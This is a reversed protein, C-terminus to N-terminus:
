LVKPSYLISICANRSVKLKFRKTIRDKKKGKGRDYKKNLPIKQAVITKIAILFSASTRFAIDLTLKIISKILVQEM